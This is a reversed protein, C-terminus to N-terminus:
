KVRESIAIMTLAERSEKFSVHILEMKTLLCNLHLQVLILSLKRNTLNEMQVVVLYASSKIHDVLDDMALNVSVSRVRNKDVM